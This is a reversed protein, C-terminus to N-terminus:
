LMLSFPMWACAFIAAFIVFLLYILASILVIGAGWLTWLKAQNAKRSAEDYLGSYYLPEVKSSYIIGIIGFPLCCILTVIISEVFWTKPMPPKETQAEKTEEKAEQMPPPISGALESLEEVDKLETWDSMGERWVLTQRTINKTRLEEVSFPGQRKEELVVYYEM